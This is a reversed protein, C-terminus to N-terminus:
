GAATAGATGQVGTGQLDFAIKKEVNAAAISSRHLLGRM